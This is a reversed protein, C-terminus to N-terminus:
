QSCLEKSYKAPDVGHSAWGGVGDAVALFRYIYTYIFVYLYTNDAYFADEGGKYAKEPHPIM